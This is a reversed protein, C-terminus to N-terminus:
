KDVFINYEDRTICALHGPGVRSNGGVVDVGHFGVVLVTRDMVPHFRGPTLVQVPWSM